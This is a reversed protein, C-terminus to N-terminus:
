MLLMGSKSVVKTKKAIRPTRQRAQQIQSNELQQTTTGQTSLDRYYTRDKVVQNKHGKNTWRTTTGYRKLETSVERHSGKDKSEMTVPINNDWMVKGPPLQPQYEREKLQQHSM